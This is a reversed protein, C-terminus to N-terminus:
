VHNRVKGLIAFTTAVGAAFVAAFFTWGSAALQLAGSIGHGSTCGGAMRAGFLILAGGLFAVAYRLWVSSGFRERWLAPVTERQRDGSLKASAWAGLLIGIVLLMQWDVIVKTKEFYANGTVHDPAVAQELLGVGRVFTTSVGLTEDVTAFSFWSLVGILAGVVYPSWSHKKLWHM